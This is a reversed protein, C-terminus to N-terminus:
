STSCKRITKYHLAEASALSIEYLREAAQFNDWEMHLNGLHVLADICNPHEEWLKTLLEYQERQTPAHLAKIIPDHDEYLSESGYDHYAYQNLEDDDGDSDSLIHSLPIELSFIHADLRIASPEYRKNLVTGSLYRTEGETWEKEVEFEVIDFEILNDVPDSKTSYMIENELDFGRLGDLGIAYM